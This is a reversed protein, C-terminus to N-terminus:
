SFIVGFVLLYLRGRVQFASVSCHNFVVQRDLVYESIKLGAAPGLANGVLGAGGGGSSSSSSGFMREKVLEGYSPTCRVDTVFDDDQSIHPPQAVVGAFVLLVPCSVNFSLHFANLIFTIGSLRIRSLSVCKGRAALTFAIV